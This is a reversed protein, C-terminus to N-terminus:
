GPELRSRLWARAHAWDYELKRPSVGTVEACQEVSLGGFFRLEVLRAQEADLAALQTMAEDLALLDIARETFAATADDIAIVARGGGRKASNKAKAHNVLIRRMAIAATAVFHNRNRFSPTDANAGAGLLHLYAEHVLATPQLTHDPRERQMYASALRRLEDYVLPFLQEAADADGQSAATLLQTVHESPPAPAM